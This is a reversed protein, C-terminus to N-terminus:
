VNSSLVEIRSLEELDEETLVEVDGNMDGEDDSSWEIDGMKVFIFNTIEKLMTTLTYDAIEEGSSINPCGLRVDPM